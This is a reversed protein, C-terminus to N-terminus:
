VAVPAFIFNEADSEKETLEDLCFTMYFPLYSVKAGRSVNKHSLVIAEPIKTGCADLLKNLALHSSVKRGSKVAIPVVKANKGEILFDVEGVKASYYYHAPIKLATLEQAVVNEFIGGLNQSHRDLFIARSTSQPYRSVLMGTDSEYLKFYTQSQTRVLPTKAETARPVVLGVGANKLWLFDQKYQEIRAGSKISSLMFRHHEGELEAPLKDFIERVFFSQQGAYKLIDVKYQEVLDRQLERTRILSYKSDVYDQVVEPMGGTIIYALFNQMMAKHVFDSVPKRKIMCERVETLAADSVNIGWCFEEFDLPRMIIRKVYGVPFSSVGKFETGLMSGSFVYSFRGDQVLDKILTVIEPFEQIEDIFILTKGEVLKTKSLVSVRSIFDSADRAAPLSDCADKNLLMNAEFFVDYNKKAFVRIAFSKGIQRAGTVLLAKNSTKKWHEFDSFVKRKLM